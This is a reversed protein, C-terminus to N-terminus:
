GASAKASDQNLRAARIQESREQASQLTKKVAAHVKARELSFDWTGVSATIAAHKNSDKKM